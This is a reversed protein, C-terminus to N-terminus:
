ASRRALKWVKNLCPYQEDQKYSLVVRKDEGRGERKRYKGADSPESRELGGNPLVLFLYHIGQRMCDFSSKSASDRHCSASTVRKM